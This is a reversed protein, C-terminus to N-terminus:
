NLGYIYRVFEVATDINSSNVVFSLVAEKGNYYSYEIIKPADTIYIGAATEVGEDNQSYFISDKFREKLDDPLIDSIDGFYGSKSFYDITDPDGVIIDLDNAAIVAATKELGTYSDMGVGDKSYTLTSDIYAYHKKLDIKMYETFEDILGTDSSDGTDNFFFAAFATDEPATVVTYIIYAVLAAAVAIAIAAKMYYDKFYEFKERFSANKLKANQEKIEDHINKNQDRNKNYVEM